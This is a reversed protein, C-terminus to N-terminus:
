PIILEWLSLESSTSILWLRSSAVHNNNHAALSHLSNWCIDKQQPLIESHYCGLTWNWHPNWEKKPHVDQKIVVFKHYMNIYIYIHININKKIIVQWHIDDIDIQFIRHLSWSLKAHKINYMTRSIHRYRNKGPLLTISIQSQKATWFKLMTFLTFYPIKNHFTKFKFKTNKVSLCSRGPPSRDVTPSWSDIEGRMFINSGDVLVLSQYWSGVIITVYRGREISCCLSIIRRCQSKNTATWNPIAYKLIGPLPGRWMFFISSMLWSDM